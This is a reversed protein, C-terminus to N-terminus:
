FDQIGPMVGATGWEAVCPLLIKSMQIIQMCILTRGNLLDDGGVTSGDTGGEWQLVIEVRM